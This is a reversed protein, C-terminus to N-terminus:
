ENGYTMDLIHNTFPEESLMTYLLGDSERADM